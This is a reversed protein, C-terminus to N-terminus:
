NKLHEDNESRIRAATTTKISKMTTNNVHAFMICM